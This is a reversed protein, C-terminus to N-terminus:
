KKSLPAAPLVACRGCKHEKVWNIFRSVYAYGIEDFLLWLVPTNNLDRTIIEKSETVDYEGVGGDTLYTICRADPYHEAIYEFAPPFNTGFGNRYIIGDFLSGRRMNVEERSFEQAKAVSDSCWLIVAKKYNLTRLAQTAEDLFLRVVDGDTSGSSDIVFVVTGLQKSHRSPLPLGQSTKLRRNPRFWTYKGSNHASNAWRMLEARFNFGTAYSAEAASVSFPDDMDQKNGSGMDVGQAARLSNAIDERVETEMDRIQSDDPINNVDGDYEDPLLMDDGAGAKAPALENEDENENGESGSATNQDQDQDQGGSGGCKKDDDGVSKGEDDGCSQGSDGAKDKKALLQNAIGDTTYVDPRYQKDYLWGEGLPMDWDHKIIYNILFDQSENYTQMLDARSYKSRDQRAAWREFRPFFSLHKNSVEHLLASVCEDVTLKEFYKPSYIIKRLGDTAASGISDDAIIEMSALFAGIPILRPERRFRFIAKQFNTVTDDLHTDFTFSM